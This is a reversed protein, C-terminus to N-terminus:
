GGFLALDTSRLQHAITPYFGTGKCVRQVVITGYKNHLSNLHTGPVRDQILKALALEEAVM